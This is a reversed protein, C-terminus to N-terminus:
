KVVVKTGKVVYVGRPLSIVANGEVKQSAVLKGTISYVSVEQPSVTAVEVGGEVAKVGVAAKSEKVADIGTVTRPDVIELNKIKVVVGSVNGFDM